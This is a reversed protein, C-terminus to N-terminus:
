IRDKELPKESKSLVFWLITAKEGSPLSPNFGKILALTTGLIVICGAAFTGLLHAVSAENVLYGVINAEIPYFPHPPQPIGTTNIGFNEM